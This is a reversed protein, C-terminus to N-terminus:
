ASEGDKLMHAARQREADSLAVPAAPQRRQRLYLAMGALGGVLLLFPGFWLVWTLPKVAPRYLVFDGYRTVLFDKIEADSKGQKILGRVENRLDNALEARSSALSENQCVLCRLEDAIGVMRAELAPDEAM